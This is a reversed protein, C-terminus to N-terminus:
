IGGRRADLLGRVTHMALLGGSLMFQLPTQGVFIANQNPLSPWQDALKAGYIIHLAKYIGILFSIRTIRDVEL